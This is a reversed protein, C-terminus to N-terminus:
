SAAGILLLEHTEAGARASSERYRDQLVQPLVVVFATSHKPDHLAVAPLQDKGFNLMAEWINVQEAPATMHLGKLAPWAAWSAEWSAQKWGPPVVAGLAEGLHARQSGSGQPSKAAKTEYLWLHADVQLKKQHISGTSAPAAGGGGACEPPPMNLPKPPMTAWPADEAAAESHGASAAEPTNVHQRAHEM